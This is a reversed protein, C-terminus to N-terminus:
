KLISLWLVSSLILKFETQESLHLHLYSLPLHSTPQSAPQSQMCLSFPALVAEKHMYTQGKERGKQPSQLPGQLPSLPTFHRRCTNQPDSGQLKLSREKGKGDSRLQKVHALPIRPAKHCMGSITGLFCIKTKSFKM